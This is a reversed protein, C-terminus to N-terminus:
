GPMGEIISFQSQTPVIKTLKFGTAGFLAEFEAETRNVGGTMVMMNIDLLKAESPGNGPPIVREVLLLRGNNTMAHRCNQLIAEAHENNWDHIIIKLVYADGGSPVAEFFDGAVIECRDAVGEAEIVRRAGEAVHPLEFLVGRLPPNAKLIAAIFSGHGGGVDVVTAIGSFDYAALVAASGGETSITMTENFVEGAQPNRSLYEFFGMDFVHDFATEGTRVSHLLQGWPGWMWEGGVRIAYPHLSGPVGTQLPEAQPTLEFRGHSSEAFIGLSALARLVRYLNHPHVGVRNALEDSSKPGDKLLDAIGLMAAVYILQTSRAGTIIERLAVVPPVPKRTQLRDQTAM